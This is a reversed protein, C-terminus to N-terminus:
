ELVVDRSVLNWKLVKGEVRMYTKEKEIDPDDPKNPEDPDVPKPLNPDRPDSSDWPMGLGQFAVIKLVYTNNRRTDANVVIKDKEQRNWLVRYACRGHTYTYSKTQDTHTLSHKASEKDKYVLGDKEGVYFTMGETGTEKKLSKSDADWYYVENPTYTTYVKAYALRYFGYDKNTTTFESNKVSNEMFYVGRKAKAADLNEEVPIAKYNKLQDNTGPTTGEPILNGLRILYNKVDAPDQANQFETYDDIASKFDTYMQSTVDLTRSGAHNGFIYTKVAGNVAAYTLDTLKVKGKKDTTTAQLNDGKIVMGQAVVREVDFSFVNKTEDSGSNADDETVGGLITKLKSASTMVFKDDTSLAGINDSESGAKGYTATEALSVDLSLNEKNFVLAMAQDGTNTKWPSVKYMGPTSTLPWFKGPAESAAYEWEQSDWTGLLNLHSLKGEQARGDYDEQHDNVAKSTVKTIASVYMGAYTTGKERDPFPTDTKNCATLGIGLVVAGTLFLNMNM